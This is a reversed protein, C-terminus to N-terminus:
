RNKFLFVQFRQIYSSVGRWVAREFSKMFKKTILESYDEFSATNTKIRLGVM